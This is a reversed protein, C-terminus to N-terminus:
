EAGSLLAVRNGPLTEVRGALELDLLAARVEPASLQCRRVLDDVLTPTAGLLRTVAAVAAEPTVLAIQREALPPFDPAARDARAFMPDRSVGLRRPDDPLNQLIDAASAVLHAGNRILANTGEARPDLPSGPVAFIERGAELALRATILSGSRLAAEVVVVGLSLGAIVRNRRPFHRAIPATGLPAEALVCGREAVRDQLEAHEPPYPRDLGGAICAITVGHRLAGEHAAADIGRALGSVIGIGQEALQAALREALLRGNASANRSGIVAVMPRDLAQVNGLVALAPPPDDLLALLEPYGPAGLFLLKGGLRDLADFERQVERASPVAPAPRGARAAAAPLAAIAATATGYRELLKRVTTAGIGPCRALRLRDTDSRM